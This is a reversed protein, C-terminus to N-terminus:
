HPTCSASAGASHTTKDSAVQSPRRSSHAVQAANMERATPKRESAGARVSTQSHSKRNTVQSGAASSKNGKSQLVQSQSDQSHQSRSRRASSAAPVSRQSHKSITESVVGAAASLLESSSSSLVSPPLSHSSRIPVAIFPQLPCQAYSSVCTSTQKYTLLQELEAYTPPRRTLGLGSAVSGTQLHELGNDEEYMHWLSAMELEPLSGFLKVNCVDVAHTQHEAGADADTSPSSSTAPSSSSTHQMPSPSTDLRKSFSYVALSDVPDSSPVKPLNVIALVNSPSSLSRCWRQVCHAPGGLPFCYLRM